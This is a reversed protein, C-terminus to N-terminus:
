GHKVGGVSTKGARGAHLAEVTGRAIEIEEDTPIVFAELRSGAASIRRDGESAATNAGPDLTLGLWELGQCVRAWVEASREGIAGTFV